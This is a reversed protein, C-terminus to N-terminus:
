RKHPTYLLSYIAGGLCLPYMIYSLYRMSEVDHKATAKESETFQGFRLRPLRNRFEVTIKLAKSVKWM